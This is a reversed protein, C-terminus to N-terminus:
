IKKLFHTLRDEFKSNKSKRHLFLSPEAEKEKTQKISLEYKGKNNKGLVKVKVKQGNKVYQAIDEVFENSIESIHVLGEESDSFRVFAGFNTVNTVEGEVIKGIISETM